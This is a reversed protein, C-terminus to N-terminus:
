TEYAVGVDFNEDGVGTEHATHFSDVTTNGHNRDGQKAILEV